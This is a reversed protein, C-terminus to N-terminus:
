IIEKDKLFKVLGEFQDCKYFLEARSRPSIKNDIYRVLFYGDDLKTINVRIASQISKTYKNVSFDFSVSNNSDDNDLQAKNNIWFHSDNNLSNLFNIEHKTFLDKVISHLKMYERDTINVYYDDTEFAEFLKIRM